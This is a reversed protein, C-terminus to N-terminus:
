RVSLLSVDVEAPVAQVYADASGMSYGAAPTPMVVGDPSPAALPTASAGAAGAGDSDQDGGRSDDPQVGSVAMVYDRLPRLYLVELTGVPMASAGEHVVLAITDGVRGKLSRIVTFRQIGAVAEEARAVVVARFHEAEPLVIPAAAYGTAGAKDAAPGTAMEGTAGDAGSRVQTEVADSGLNAVGIGVVLAVVAAAALTAALRGRGRRRTRAAAAPPSFFGALLPWREASPEGYGGPAEPVGARLRRVAAEIDSRARALHPAVEPDAEAAALEAEDGIGLALTLLRDDDMEHGPTGHMTSM